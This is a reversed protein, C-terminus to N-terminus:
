SRWESTQQDYHDDDKKLKNSVVTDKYNQLNNTVLQILVLLRWWGSTKNNNVIKKLRLNTPLSRRCESTQQCCYESNYLKNNVIKTIWFNTPLLRQWEINQSKIETRRFNALFSWQLKSTQQYHDEDNQLKNTVIKTM